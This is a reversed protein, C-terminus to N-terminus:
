RHEEPRQVKKIFAAPGTFVLNAQAPSEITRKERLKSPM